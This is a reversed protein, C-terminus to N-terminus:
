TKDSLLKQIVEKIRVELENRDIINTTINTLEKVTQKITSKIMAFQSERNNLENALDYNKKKAKELGKAFNELSRIEKESEQRMTALKDRKIKLENIKKDLEQTNLQNPAKAAM